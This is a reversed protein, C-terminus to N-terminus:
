GHRRETAKYVRGTGDVLPGSLPVEVQDYRAHRDSTHRYFGLGSGASKGYTLMRCEYLFVSIGEWLKKAMSLYNRKM